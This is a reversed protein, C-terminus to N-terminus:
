MVDVYLKNLSNAFSEFSTGEALVFTGEKAGKLKFGDNFRLAIKTSTSGDSMRDFWVGLEYSGEIGSVTMVIKYSTNNWDIDREDIKYESFAFTKLIGKAENIKNTRETYKEVNERSVAISTIYLEDINISDGFSYVSSCGALTFTLILISFLSLFLLRKKM